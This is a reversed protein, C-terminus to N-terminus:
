KLIYIFRTEHAHMRGKSTLRLLFHPGLQKQAFTKRTIYYPVIAESEKKHSIYRPFQQLDDYKELEEFPLRTNRM